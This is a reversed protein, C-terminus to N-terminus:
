KKKHKNKKKNASSVDHYVFEIKSTNPFKQLIEMTQQRLKNSNSQSKSSTESRTGWDIYLYFPEIFEVLYNNKSLTNKLFLVCSKMDYSPYGILIRPVEFIIYTQGTHRNTYVVKEICKNLVVKFIDMKSKEKISKEQHLAEISPIKEMTVKIYSILNVIPNSIM